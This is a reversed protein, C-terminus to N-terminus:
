DSERQAQPGPLGRSARLAQLVWEQPALRVTAEQQALWARLARRASRERLASEPLDPLVLRDQRDQLEKLVLQELQALLDRQERLALLTQVLLIVESESSSSVTKSSGWPWFRGLVRKWFSM